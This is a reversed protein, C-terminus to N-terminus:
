NRGKLIEMLECIDIDTIDINKDYDDIMKECKIIAMEIIKDKDM